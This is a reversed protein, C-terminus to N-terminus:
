KGRWASLPDAEDPAEIVDVRMEIGHREACGAVAAVGDVLDAFVAALGRSWGADLWVPEVAREESHSAEINGPLVEARLDGEMAQLREKGESDRTARAWFTFVAVLPHHAHDHEVRVRGGRAFLLQGFLRPMTITQHVHLLVEKGVAIVKPPPSYLPWDDALGIQDSDLTLGQEKAFRHLPPVAAPDRDTSELWASHEDCVKAIAAVVERAVADSAMRGVLTYSGSNNSAFAQLVRIETAELQRGPAEASAATRGLRVLRACGRTQAPLGMRGEDRWAALVDAASDIPIKEQHFSCPQLCRDSTLAVFDRGAGCDGDLELIRPVPELREGFCVSLKVACRGSLIRALKTVRAGLERAEADSLHLSPDAGNYSLLLVDSVGRAVLDLVFAELRPLREPTVLWNVGFPANARVCRAIADRFPQDDYLSLRLQAYLGHIRALMAEDLLLGNTTISVALRTRDRLRQLLGDFGKWAFPEGGGFAVELVGARDLDTLLEALADVTWASRASLDRYCFSCALNCHNTVAVQVVRPAVRRLHQTFPGQARITAGNEPDFWLLAADLAYARFAM